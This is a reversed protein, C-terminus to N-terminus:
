LHRKIIALVQIKTAGFSHFDSGEQDEEIYFFPLVTKFWLFIFNLHIFCILSVTLTHLVIFVQSNMIQQWFDNCFNHQVHRHM